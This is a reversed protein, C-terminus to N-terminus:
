EGRLKGHVLRALSVASELSEPSLLSEDIWVGTSDEIALLLQTVALSDLGAAVLNSRPTFDAGADLLQDRLIEFVRRTLEDRTPTAM